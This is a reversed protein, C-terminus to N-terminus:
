AGLKLPAIPYTAKGPQYSFLLFAKAIQGFPGFTVATLEEAMRDPTLMLEDTFVCVWLEKFPGGQLRITDKRFLVERLAEAAEGPRWDRYVDRGRQNAKVAKACVLETVELAILDGGMYCTLDPPDPEHLELRELGYGLEANLARVLEEGVSIEKQWKGGFEFFAAYKRRAGLLSLPDTPDQPM